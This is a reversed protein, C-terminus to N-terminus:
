MRIGIVELYEAFVTTCDPGARNHMTWLVELEHRLQAQGEDNLSAFARNTPGYYLRFFEVVEAPPFPYSFRYQRKTLSLESLGHGLRERVMTEDGWLAPAPMGSPAIFTSVTKFMQGIFGQPTWNAMAVQGGPVCVRLLEKAVLNPRPAFMAGILSVVVDFSADEFPLAEADAEEFRARLGEAQARTRARAVWNAAIDVGTVEVGDYAAMLALQGSGCAVDLLQCGPTLTLREYFERAGPEMYRSFRDYDGATWIETLRTKLDGMEGVMGKTM